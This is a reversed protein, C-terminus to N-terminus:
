SRNSTNIHRQDIRVSSGSSFTKGCKVCARLAQRHNFRPPPQGVMSRVAQRLGLRARRQKAEQRLEVIDQDIHQQRRCRYRRAQLVPDIGAHDEGHNQGIRDDAEHLLAFGLRRHCRDAAHERRAGGHQAVSSAHASSPASSTGPSM